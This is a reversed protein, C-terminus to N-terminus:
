DGNMSRLTPSWLCPGRCGTHLTYTPPRRETRWALTDAHEPPLESGLHLREGEQARTPPSCCRGGAEEISGSAPTVPDTPAGPATRHSIM